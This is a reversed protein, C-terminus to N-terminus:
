RVGVRLNYVPHKFARVIAFAHRQGPEVRSAVRVAMAVLPVIVPGHPRPAVPHDLREVAVQREILERDFLQGAIHKGIRREFLPESRTEIAVVSDILFAAANVLFPPHLVHRVAHFRGASNPQAQRHAAGTAVVVLVIRKGLLFEIAHKREEVAYCLLPLNRVLRQRWRRNDLDDIGFQLQPQLFHALDNLRQRTLQFWGRWLLPLGIDLPLLFRPRLQSVLGLGLKIGPMDDTREFRFVEVLRVVLFERRLFGNTQVPLVVLSLQLPDGPRFPFVALNM